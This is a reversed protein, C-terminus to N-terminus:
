NTSCRKGKNPTKIALEGLREMELAITSFGSNVIQPKAIWLYSAKPLQKSYDYFLARLRRKVLNRCVANGVKRSVVFASQTFDCPM